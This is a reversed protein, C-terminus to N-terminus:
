AGAVLGAVLLGGFALVLAVTAALAPRLRAPRRHDHWLRRTAPVGPLLGLLAPLATAPLPGVAVGAVLAAAAGALLLPYGWRARRTGLRVVWHHKGARADALRDPFQNIYLLASGALGYPLGAVLPELGPAGAVAWHVGLPLLGGFCVVLTAEGLGRGVLNLPRASYGWGLVAGAAVVGLLGAGARAALVGAVVLGLAILGLGLALTAREGLRGSQILGAGGTFPPVRHRNGADTGSRADAWDNLVNAAAHAIVAGILVLLLWGPHAGAGATAVGIGVPPVAALLFPPRTAVLWRAPDRRVGAQAGDRTNGELTAM